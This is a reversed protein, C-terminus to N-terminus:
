NLLVIKGRAHRTESFDHAAVVETFPFAAAVPIRLLGQEALTVAETLGHVALSDSMGSSLHVGYSAADLDAISVVRAADGALKVLDALAGGACDIVADVGDPALEHVREVLGPGYTTPTVGLSRLFDHNNPSATGIVTAGRAVAVQVIVAGTGGAAGQVLVTDGADVALRDLVRAATEVAGGAGAAEEWSWAAPKPAWAALIAFDANAGRETFDPWGFVEDGLRVGEVGEGIEDVVGTADFGTRYPFSIPMVAKTAGSRVRIEGPSIGSAKVAIRIHDPGAHPEPIEAIHMVTSPGYETFQIARM